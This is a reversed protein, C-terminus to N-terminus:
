DSDRSVGESWACDECFELGPCRGQKRALCEGRKGHGGTFHGLWNAMAATSFRPAVPTSWGVFRKFTTLM